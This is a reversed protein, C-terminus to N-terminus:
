GQGEELEGPTGLSLRGQRAAGGARALDRARRGFRGAGARDRVPDMGFVRVRGASPRQLGELVEITTTKGAGNTGLLAFLEGRQVALSVGRVAELEGYSRRMGDVEIVTESGADIM